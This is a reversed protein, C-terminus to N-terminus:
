GVGKMLTSRYCVSVNCNKALLISMGFRADCYVKMELRMIVKKLYPSPYEYGCHLKTVDAWRFSDTCAICQFTERALKGLADAQCRAYPQCPGAVGTTSDDFDGNSSLLDALRRVAEEGIFSEHAGETYPPPAEMGVRGGVGCLSFILAMEFAVGATSCAVDFVAPFMM